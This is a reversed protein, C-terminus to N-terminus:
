PMYEASAVGIVNTGDHVLSIVTAKSATFTPAADGAWKMTPWTVTSGGADATLRVLKVMGGTARSFTFTNAGAALPKTFVDSKAWDIDDAPMELSPMHQECGGRTIEEWAGGSGASLDWMLIIWGGPPITVTPTRLHLNTGALVADDQLVLAHTSQIGNQLYIVQSWPVGAASIDPATITPTATMVVDASTIECRQYSYPASFATGAVPPSGGPYQQYGVRLNALSAQPISSFYADLAIEESVARTTLGGSGGGAAAFGGPLIRVFAVDTLYSPGSAFTAGCIADIEGGFCNALLGPGAPNAEHYTNEIRINTSSCGIVDFSYITTAADTTGTYPSVLNITTGGGTISAVYYFVGADSAFTFFAGPGIKGTVDGSAFVATQGATVAYTIGALSAPLASGGIGCVPMGIVYGAAGNNQPTAGSLLAGFIYNAGGGPKDIGGGPIAIGSGANFQYIGSAQLQSNNASPGASRVGDGRSIAWNTYAGATPLRLNGAVMITTANLVQNVQFFRASVDPDGSNGGDLRIVDGYRLGLATLDITGTSATATITHRDAEVTLTIPQSTSSQVLRSLHGNSGSLYNDYQGQVGASSCYLLGNGQATCSELVCFDAEILNLGDQLANYFSCDVFRSLTGNLCSAGFQAQSNANFVIGECGFVTSFYVCSAMAATAKIVTGSALSAGAGRMRFAPGGVGTTIMSSIRYIGAPFYLDQPPLATSCATVAAQIAATDDHSDDGKAGFRKVNVGHVFREVSVSKNAGSSLIPFVDGDALVGVPSLESIKKNTM